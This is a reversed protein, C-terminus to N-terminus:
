DFVHEAFRMSTVPMPFLREDNMKLWDKAFSEADLLCILSVTMYLQLLHKMVVEMDNNLSYEQAPGGFLTLYVSLWRIVPKEPSINGGPAAIPLSSGDDNPSGARAHISSGNM